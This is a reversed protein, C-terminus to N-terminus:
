RVRVTAIEEAPIRGDRTGVVLRWDGSSAQSPVAVQVGGDVDTAQLEMTIRPGRIQVRLARASAVPFHGRLVLAEGPRAEVVAPAADGSWWVLNRIRGAEISTIAPAAARELVTFTTPDSWESVAREIWTRTRVAVAGPKLRPPVRVHVHDPGTARSLETVAGQTFEVDIRDVRRVEFEVEHDKVLDTWQGPAVPTMLAVALSKLPLPVSTVVFRLPASLSEVGAENRVVRVTAEGDAVEDPLILSIGRSSVGTAVRWQRGGADTLQVRDGVRAATTTALLVSQAPHPRVPSIGTLQLDAQEAIEIALPASRRGNADIVLQWPGPSLNPPVLVDMYHFENNADRSLARGSGSIRGTHELTDRRFLVRVSNSDELGLAYGTVALVSNPAAVAPVLSSVRPPGTPASREIAIPTPPVETTVPDERCNDPGFISATTGNERWWRLWQRRTAVPDDATGGCWARHTLTNLAGCVDNRSPNNGFMGILVPVAARARTNGLATAISPRVEASAAVLARELHEVARDGGIHGLGLAAYRRSTQDM